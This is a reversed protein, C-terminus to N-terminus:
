EYGQLKNIIIDLEEESLQKLNIDADMQVAQMKPLVFPMMKELFHVKQATDLEKFLEELNDTKSHLFDSIKKRLENPTKNKAGKPRGKPNGSQGKQFAMATKKETLFLKLAESGTFDNKRYPNEM